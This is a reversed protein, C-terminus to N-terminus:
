EFVHNPHTCTEDCLGSCHEHLFGSLKQVWIEDSLGAQLNMEGLKVGCGCSCLIDRTEM